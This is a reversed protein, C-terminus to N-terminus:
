PEMSIMRTSSHSSTASAIRVAYGFTFACVAAVPLRREKSIRLLKRLNATPKM